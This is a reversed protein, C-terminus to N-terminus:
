ESFMVGELDTISLWVQHWLGTSYREDGKRLDAYTDHASKEDSEGVRITIERSWHHLAPRSQSMRQSSPGGGGKARCEALGLLCSTPSCLDFPRPQRARPLVHAQLLAFEVPAEVDERFLRPGPTQRTASTSIGESSPTSRLRVGCAPRTAPSCGDFSEARVAALPWM